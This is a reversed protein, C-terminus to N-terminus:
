KMGCCLGELFYEMNPILWAKWLFELEIFRAEKVCVCMFFTYNRMHTTFMGRKILYSKRINLKSVCFRENIKM